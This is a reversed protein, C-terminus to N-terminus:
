RTAGTQTGTLLLEWYIVTSGDPQVQVNTPYMTMGTSFKLRVLGGTNGGGRATVINTVNNVNTASGGTPTFSSPNVGMVVGGPQTTEEATLLWTLTGGVASGDLVTQIITAAPNAPLSTNSVPESWTLPFPLSAM